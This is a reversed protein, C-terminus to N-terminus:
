DMSEAGHAPDTPDRRAVTRRVYLPQGRHARREHVPSRVATAVEDVTGDCKGRPAERDDVKGAAVLRNRVLVSRADDDLVALDVVIRLQATLELTLAVRESR